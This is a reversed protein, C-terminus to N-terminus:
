VFFEGIDQFTKGNTTKVINLTRRLSQLIPFEENGRCIARFDDHGLDFIAMGGLSKDNVYKAKRAAFQPDDYSLWYGKTGNNNAPRFAYTGYEDTIQRLSIGHRRRPTLHHCIDTWSVLGNKLKHKGFAVNPLTYEVIPEGSLGSKVTMNWARGYTAIALNLLNPPCGNNIWHSVQFDVNAYPLRPQNRNMFLPAFYDAESPNRQPTNFDFAFLNIFEFNNHIKAVDFYLSSNVNPLVTMVLSLKAKDFAEKMDVLLRTYYHKYKDMKNTAWIDKVDNLFKTLGIEQNPNNRPLPFAMDLGDFGLTQLSKVCEGIFKLQKTKNSELLELYPAQDDKDGGLSLYFKLHPNQRKANKLNFSGLGLRLAFSKPQLFGSNYVLHTCRALSNNFHLSTFKANGQRLSSEPDYYCVLRKNNVTQGTVIQLLFLSVSLFILCKVLFM